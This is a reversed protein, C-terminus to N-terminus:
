KALIMKQTLSSVPTKVQYLYIGSTLGTADFKFKYSGTSLFGEHLVAVEKGALDFIKVQVESDQLLDFEITTTPNFPNPYNQGIILDEILGQGVKVVESYVASGDKNVQKIRFYIIETHDNNESLLIYKKEEDDIADIKGTEIFDGSGIAKELVYYEADTSSGGSWEIEYYNNMLRVNIKPARPFIPADSKIFKIQEYSIKKEARLDNLETESFDMQFIVVSSDDNYDQYIYNRNIGSASGNGTVLRFQELFLEGESVSNQFHFLLNEPNLYNRIRTQALEFGNIFFKLESTVKNLSLHFHHWVNDSLFYPKLRLLEDDKSEIAAIQNENISLSYEVWNTEWDIIRFFESNFDKVKLWFEIELTKEFKYMQAINLYSNYDLSLANEATTAKPYYSFSISYLHSNNFDTELDSNLLYSIVKEDDVYEGFFKLTNSNTHGPKLSLVIQFFTEDKFISTDSFDVVVKKFQESYESIFENTLPLDVKGNGIWIEAKTIALTQEPLFYVVLNEAEPFKNSTIISVEFRTNEPIYKPIFIKFNDQSSITDFAFLISFCLIVNIRKFM